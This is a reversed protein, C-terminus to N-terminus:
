TFVSLISDFSYVASIPYKRLTRQTVSRSLSSLDLGTFGLIDLWKDSQLSGLLTLGAMHGSRGLFSHRVLYMLSSDGGM